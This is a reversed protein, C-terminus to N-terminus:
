TEGGLWCCQRDWYMSNQDGLRKVYHERYRHKRNFATMHMIRPDDPHSYGKMGRTRQYAFDHPSYAMELWANGYLEEEVTSGVCDRMRLRVMEGNKMPSRMWYYPLMYSYWLHVVYVACWVVIWMGFWGDSNITNEQFDRFPEYPSYHAFGHSSDAKPYTGTVNAIEPYDIFWEYLLQQRAYYIRAAAIRRQVRLYDYNREGIVRNIMKSWWFIGNKWYNNKTSFLALSMTRSERKPFSEGHVRRRDRICM